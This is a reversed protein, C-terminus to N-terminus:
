LCHLAFGLSITSCIHRAQLSCYENNFKNSQAFFVWTGIIYYIILIGKFALSKLVPFNLIFIKYFAFLSIGAIVESSFLPVIDHPLYILLFLLFICSVFSAYNLPIKFNIKPILYDIKWYKVVKNLLWNDHIKNSNKINLLEIQTNSYKNIFSSLQMIHEYSSYTTYFITLYHYIVFINYFKELISKQNNFSKITFLFSKIACICIVIFLIINNINQKIYNIVIKKKYININSNVINISLISFLSFIIWNKIHMKKQLQDM